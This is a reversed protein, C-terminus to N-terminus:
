HTDAWTDGIKFEADLPCLFSLTEDLGQFASVVGAGCEEAKDPPCEYQIEDHVHAIQHIDPTIRRVVRHAEVTGYKMVIAGASQLLYNLASHQSRIPVKRGDLAKLYKRTKLTGTIKSRLTKLAPMKQNFRRLLAQGEKPGGGVISGLKAPGAGYILGYIFTKAQDRSELGAAEQNAVHIDGNLILDVYQGKDFPHLYHALCRLELGSADAGLMVYPKEAKFLSRCAKGYIARVAPVQAVNPKSHSCRHTATGITNVRGHIRGDKDAWKLWAEDGEALQGLRKSLTMHKMLDAAEAYPLTKLISEDVKPSGGKTFEQPEWGRKILEAAIQPRSDPNFPIVNVQPPGAVVTRPAHGDAVAAKKTPYRSDGVSWYEPRSMTVMKPPFTKELKVRLSERERVLQAYLRGAAKVDFLIGRCEQKWLIRQFDHEVDVAAPVMMTGDKELSQVCHNFLLQTLEVDRVCYELMEPSYGSWDETDGGFDGKHCGLRFGWARLSHSGVWKNKFEEPLTKYNGFDDTRQDSFALRALVKTDLVLGEPKWGPILKQIAPIDFCLVNHGCIVDQLRLEELGEAISPYGDDPASFRMTQDGRRLVLCHIGTLGDLTHWDDIATTEIDFFTVTGYNFKM